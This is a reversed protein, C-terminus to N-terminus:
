EGLTGDVTQVTRHQTETFDVYRTSAIRSEHLAVAYQGDATATEHVSKEVEPLPVNEDARLLETLVRGDVGDPVPLGLMACITPALDINGTPRDNIAGERFAPGAVILTNHIDYPSSTGHGAVGPLDTTGKWGSENEAHSWNADVLIDPAREHDFHALAMSLTGPV